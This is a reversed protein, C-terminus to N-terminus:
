DEKRRGKFAQSLTRTDAYDLKGGFPIGSALRTILVKGELLRMLYKATTEGEMTPDLALIVEETDESIRKELSPINLQDPLIGKHINIAGHLVHYVGQYEQLNEIAYIDKENQVVCIQNHNRSEDSCIECIESESLNGCVKCRRIKTISNLSEIFQNKQEDSWDLIAFAMREASKMGVGPLKHLELVLNEFSVPYM